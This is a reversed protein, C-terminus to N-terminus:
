IGIDVCSGSSLTTQVIVYEGGETGSFIVDNEGTPLDVHGEKKVDNYHLHGDAFWVEHSNVFVSLRAKSYSYPNIIKYHFTLCKPEIIDVIPAFLQGNSRSHWGDPEPFYLFCPFSTDFPLM